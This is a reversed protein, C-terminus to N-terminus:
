GDSFNGTLSERERTPPPTSNNSGCWCIQMRAITASESGSNSSGTRGAFLSWVLLCPLWMWAVETWSHPYPNLHKKRTWDWHRLIHRVTQKDNPPLQSDQFRTLTLSAIFQALSPYPYYYYNSVLLLDARLLIHNMCLSLGHLGGTECPSLLSTLRTMFHVIISSNTFLYYCRFSPTFSLPTNAPYALFVPTSPFPLSLVISLGTSHFQPTWGKGRVPNTLFLLVALIIIMLRFVLCQWHIFWNRTSACMTLQFPM